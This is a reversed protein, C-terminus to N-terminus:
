CLPALMPFTFTAERPVRDGGHMLWAVDEHDPAALRQAAAEPCLPARRLGTRRAFEEWAATYEALRREWGDSM